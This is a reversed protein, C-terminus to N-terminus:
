NGKADLKNRLLMLAGQCYNGLRMIITTIRIKWICYQVLPHYSVIKYVTRKILLYIMNINYHTKNILRGLKM